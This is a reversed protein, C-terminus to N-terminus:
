DYEDEIKPAIYSSIIVDESRLQVLVPMGEILSISVRSSIPHSKMVSNLYRLSVSVGGLSSPNTVSLPKLRIKATAIDGSTIMVVANDDVSYSFSVTDGITSLERFVDRIRQTQFHFELAQDYSPIDIEEDHDTILRLSVETRNGDLYISMNDSESSDLSITFQDKMDPSLCLATLISSIRVTAHTESEDNMDDSSGIWTVFSLSVHATDVVTARCTARGFVLHVHDNLDRLAHLPATFRGVQDFHFKM